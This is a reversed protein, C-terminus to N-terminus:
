HYNELDDCHYLKDTKKVPKQTDGGKAKADLMKQILRAREKQMAAQVDADKNYDFFCIGDVYTQVPHAYITLPNANWLVLDADKGPEITGLWKDLHLTKAPNLTVMKWAQEETMGGYKITKAAEQNLRRGMEADDSNICTNVGQETLIAANYPIAEMVEYKYDWWDAFTSANVGHAKMKDAVKYGELIHTFTNVRFGFKEAVRMLMTIESQVYSHCTIFRKKNIIEDLTEMNLQKRPPATTAKDKASLKNYNRWASEYEKARTFFDMYVQEVGMRTQPYRVTNYDGWNSQKVNEGLAFKIFPSANEFKMKEPSYGWRLKVIASQGGIPNASGHLLQSTTVGGALQRYINIDECNIVDGIRVEASSSHTGENVGGSIAIHSHEDIIGNTLHMGTADIVQDATKVSINKGVSSIKGNQILVDMNQEVGKDTNTWVTVNKFLITKQKPVEQNGYAEFPYIINDLTPKDALVSDTKEENKEPLKEKYTATWNVKSGDPLEGNGVWNNGKMLGSLRITNNSSDKVLKFNLTVLSERVVLQAKVGVSDAADKKIKAEPAGPKGGVELVYNANGVNLDYKGRLDQIEKDGTKFLQGQIWNQVIRSDKDFIDGNAIFFSATKGKELSGVLDYAKIATAPTYTLAKLAISDPLGYLVAKRLNPWFDAKNVLGATTIAFNIGKQNLFAAEAPALEWAKMEAISVNDADLPDEVDYPKPFVLPIIITAGTAKIDDLRKYEDGGGKIVYQVGFEKAIKDARLINYVDGAEFVQPLDQEKNWADLSINYEAKSGGNKYWDADLYTQRLLAIAGMLSSPYDQTSVGKRFSYHASAQARLVLENEKKDGLSVLAGTGRAIGDNQHTLVTGFGINRYTDAIGNNVKFLDVANVEPKIAQNWNYAGQKLTNLQPRDPSTGTIAVAPNLGYETCLDIFSPYVHYGKIDIVVAGAPIAIGKGAAEVKGKKIVLTASDIVTKYDVHLTANTFAYVEDRKDVPGNVPFTEQAQITIATFVLAIFAIIHRM